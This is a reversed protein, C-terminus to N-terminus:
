FMLKVLDSLIEDLPIEFLLAPLFPLLTVVILAILDQTAIPFPKMQYVNSVLQYLDTTASFHQVDLAGANVSKRYDLWRKELQNGVAGALGGYDITGRRRTEVLKRGFVLLPAVFLLLSLIVVAIIVYIFSFFSAGMHLVRNAVGGAVITSIAFSLLLFARVSLGVFQLGGVLDPHAAVLQLDLRSVRFLFRGWILIRWLWGLLLVLAVPVSVLVHWWGTWSYGAGGGRAKHWPPIDETPFTQTLVITALYALVVVLLEVTASNLLRRSDAIITDFRAREQATVIGADIFHRAIQGLRFITFDEALIFLPAAILYRSIVTLDVMVSALRNEELVLSEIASLVALPAWAILVVLVARQVSKRENPKILGLSKELRLPPGGDFLEDGTSNPQAM